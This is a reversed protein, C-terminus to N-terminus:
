DFVEDTSSSCRMSVLINAARIQRTRFSAAVNVDKTSFVLLIVVQLVLDSNEQTGLTREACLEERVEFAQVFFEIISSTRSYSSARAKSPLVASMTRIFWCSKKM